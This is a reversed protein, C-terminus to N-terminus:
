RRLFLSSIKEKKRSTSRQGHISFFFNKGSGKRFKRTGKTARKRGRTARKRGRTAGKSFLPPEPSKPSIKAKKWHGAEPGKHGAQPGKHGRYFIHTAGPVKAFIAPVRDFKRNKLKHKFFKRRARSFFFRQFFFIRSFHVLQFETNKMHFKPRPHGLFLHICFWLSRLIVTHKM